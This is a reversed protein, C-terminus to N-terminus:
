PTTYGYYGGQPNTTGGYHTCMRTQDFYGGNPFNAGTSWKENEVHGDAFLLNITGNHFTSQLDIPCMSYDDKDADYEGNGNGQWDTIDGSLIQEAPHAILTKNVAAFTGTQAHAAHAGNFYSYYKDDTTSGYSLKATSSSPCTFVNGGAPLTSPDTANGLYPATQQMWSQKGTTSDTTNWPIVSGSEPFQNAHDDSFAMMGAGIQRLNSACKTTRGTEEVTRFSPLALLALIAIIAIVVLLEILTFARTRPSIM